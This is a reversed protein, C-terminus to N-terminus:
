LLSSKEQLIQNYQFKEILYLKEDGEKQIIFSELDKYLKLVYKSNGAEVVVISPNNLRLNIEDEKNVISSAKLKAINTVYEKAKAQDPELSDSMVWKSDKNIIKFKSNDISTINNEDLSLISRNKFYNDGLNLVSSLNRNIVYVATEGKIRIYNGQDASLKGIYFEFQKGESQLLLKISSKDDVGLTLYSDVNQSAIYLIESSRLSDLFTDVV